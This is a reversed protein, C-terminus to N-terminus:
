DQPDKTEEQSQHTLFIYINKKYNVFQSSGTKGFRAKVKQNLDGM